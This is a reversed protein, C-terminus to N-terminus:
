PTNLARCSQFGSRTCKEDGAMVSILERRIDDDDRFRVVLGAPDVIAVVRLIDGTNNLYIRGRRFIWLIYRIIRTGVAESLFQRAWRLLADGSMDREVSLFYM